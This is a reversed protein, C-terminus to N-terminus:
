NKIEITRDRFLECGARYFPNYQTAFSKYECGSTGDITRQDLTILVGFLASVGGFVVITLLSGSLFLTITERM